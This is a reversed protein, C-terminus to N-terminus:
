PSGGRCKLGTVTKSQEQSKSQMRVIDFTFFFWGLAACCRPVILDFAPLEAVPRRDEGAEEEALV